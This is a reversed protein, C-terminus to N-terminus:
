GDNPPRDPDRDYSDDRTHQGPPDCRRTRLSALGTRLFDFICGGSRRVRFRTRRGGGDIWAVVNWRYNSRAERLRAQLEFSGTKRDPIDPLRISRFRRPRDRCLTRSGALAYFAAGRNVQQNNGSGDGPRLGRPRWGFRLVLIAHGLVRLHRRQGPERDIHCLISQDTAPETAAPDAHPRCAPGLGVENKRLIRGGARPLRTARCNREHNASLLSPGADHSTKASLVSRIGM